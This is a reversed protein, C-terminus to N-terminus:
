NLAILRAKDTLVYMRGAAVIPAIFVPQGLDQQVEIKGLTADVGVLKGKDSALWLKGSALVPGSWTKAGTLQTTWMPAGDRRSYASLTGATDVVFVAEGAVWPMQLGPLNAQWLREGSKISTAVMRGGHGVAFVTGNAIAPRAADSMATLNSALRSGSLSETWAPQGNSLKLAVVEGNPYPVVATDGEIAPSANSVISAKEALGRFNWIESGDATNLAFLRGDTTTVLVRGSTATPSSRVPAGLNREWIKKGNSPDLATVVGFGTAVFLRGGDAAMGGGFGKNPREGEPVLSVRWVSAGSSSFATVRAVADLTFIRGDVVIPSATLRGTTSSGTGADATWAVRTGGLALHGPSNSAVGGPQSWSDNTAATPLSVPRAEPAVDAGVKSESAMVAVRKGPLPAEKEAFPNLDQIKPMSPLGESCASLWSAIGIGVIVRSVHAIGSRRSGTGRRSGM